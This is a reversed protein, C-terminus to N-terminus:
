ELGQKLIDLLEDPNKKDVPVKEKVSVVKDDSEDVNIDKSIDVVIDEDDAVVIDKNKLSDSDKNVDSEKLFSDLEEDVSVVAPNNDVVGVFGLKYVIVALI